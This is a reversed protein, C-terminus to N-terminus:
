DAKRKILDTQSLIGQKLFTAKPVFGCNEELIEMEEDTFKLTVAHRARVEPPIAKRGPKKKVSEDTPLENKSKDGGFGAISNNAM